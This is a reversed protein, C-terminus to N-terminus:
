EVGRRSFMDEIRQELDGDSDSAVEERASARLQKIRERIDTGLQPVEELVEEQIEEEENQEKVETSPVVSVEDESELYLGQDINESNIPTPIDINPTKKEQLPGGGDEGSDGKSTSPLLLGAWWLGALVLIAIGSSWLIGSEIIETTEMKSLVIFASDDSPDDDADYPADCFLTAVVKEGDDVPPRDLDLIPVHDSSVLDISWIGSWESTNLQLWCDINELVQENSRSLGIRLSGSDLEELYSVGINWGSASISIDEEDNSLTRGHSDVLKIQLNHKGPIAEWNSSTINIVLSDDIPANFTSSHIIEGSKTSLIITASMSSSGNQITCTALTASSNHTSEGLTAAVSSVIMCSVGRNNLPFSEIHLPLEESSGSNVVSAILDTSSSPITLWWVSGDKTVAIGAQSISLSSVNGYFRLATQDSSVGNIYPSSQWSTNAAQVRIDKELSIGSDSLISVKALFSSGDWNASPKLDITLGKSEGAALMLHNSGAVTWGAPLGSVSIAVDALANGDNELWALPLGGEPSVFWTEASDFILSHIAGIRVPILVEGLGSGDAERARIRLQSVQGALGDEPPTLNIQLITSQGPSVSSLNSPYSVDWNPMVLTFWPETPENGKQEVVVELMAGAPPIELITNSLDFSWESHHLIIVQLEITQISVDEAILQLEIEAVTGNWASEDVSLNLWIMQSESISIDVLETASFSWTSSDDGSYLYSIAPTFSLHDVSNGVNTADFAFSVEDGPMASQSVGDMSSVNWRHDPRASVFVEISSITASDLNSTMSFRLHIPIRAPMNAPLSINIPVHVVAGASLNRTPNPILFIVGPDSSFNQDEVVMGTLSYSDLGNGPNSLKIILREGEDSPTKSVNMMWPEPLPASLSLDARHVQLINMSLNLDHNQAEEASINVMYLDPPTTGPISLNLWGTSPSPGLNTSLIGANISFDGEASWQWGDNLLGAAGIDWTLEQGGPKGVELQWSRDNQPEDRIHPPYLSAANATFIFNMQRCLTNEGNGICLELQNNVSDGLIAKSSSVDVKVIFERVQGPALDFFNIENGNEDIIRPSTQWTNQDWTISSTTEAANGLNEVLFWASADHGVRGHGHSLPLGDAGQISLGRTRQVEVPITANFSISPDSDLTMELIFYGSDSGEADEPVSVRITPSWAENPTITRSQSGGSTHDSISWGEPLEDHLQMSWEAAKRGIATISPTIDSSEGPLIRTMELPSNIDLVYPELVELFAIEYDNDKRAQTQNSMPDLLLSIEHVGKTAVIEVSFSIPGGNGSPATAELDVVRHRGIESGGLFLVADLAGEFDGTGVNSFQATITTSQGPNPQEPNFTIGRGDSTPAADPASRSILTDGILLDLAGDGDLDGAAPGSWTRHSISLPSSWDSSIDASVGSDGDFAYVKRGFAVVLEPAGQGDLDIALPASAAIEDNANGSSSDLTRSFDKSPPTSTTNHCGALGQRDLTWSSTSYWTVWCLREAIGDGNIDVPLPAADAYGNPARFRWIEEASTLEWAIFTAGNGTTRGNQDSPITFIVEPTADSDLQAVVPGPVRLHVPDADTQTGSLIIREWDLSGSSGDIRWVWMNGNNGDITTLLVAANLPDLAVWTPDSVHTGRDLVVTWMPDPPGQTTLPIAVVNPSDTDQDIVSLVVEPSGDMTLDALLLQSSVLHDNELAFHPSIAGLRLDANSWSWLLESTHGSTIWGSEACSLRPSYVDLNVSNSTDFAVMLELMGDGDIDALAPSSKVPLTVGLDIKWATKGSGGDIIKLMSHSESGVDQTSVIVAFLTEAGCRDNAASPASISASFDAIVTGYGDAGPHNNSEHQWNVIAKDITMLESINAVEGDAPGGNVSHPPMSSNHTPLHRFQSWVESGYWPSENRAEIMSSNNGSLTLIPTLPAALLFMLTIIVWPTNSANPM